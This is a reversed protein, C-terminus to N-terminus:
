KLAFHPFLSSPFQSIKAFAPTPMLCAGSGPRTPPPCPSARPNQQPDRSTGQGRASVLDDPASGGLSLPQRICAALPSPRHAQKVTYQFIFSLATHNFIFYQIRCSSTTNPITCYRPFHRDHKCSGANSSHRWRSSLRSPVIDDSMIGAGIRTSAFRACRGFLGHAFCM